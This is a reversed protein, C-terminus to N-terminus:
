EELTAWSQIRSKIWGVTFSVAGSAVFAISVVCLYKFNEPTGAILGLAFSIMVMLSTLSYEVSNVKGRHEEPISEQMLQVETIDFIWLPIRSIIIPVLLAWINVNPFFFLQLICLIILTLQSWIMILGTNQLGMYLIISPGFLTGFFGLFSAAGQFLAIELPTIEKFVLYNTILAGPAIVTMYLSVYALSAFLCPQISYLYYPETCSNQEETKPKQKKPAHISPFTDALNKLLFIEFCASIINWAAAIILGYFTGAFEVFLSFILPAVIKCLLSIRTSMANLETISADNQCQAIVVVWDKNCGIRTAM